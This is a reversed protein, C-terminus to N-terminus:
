GGRTVRRNATIWCARARKVLPTLRHVEAQRMEELRAEDIQGELTLHNQHRAIKEARPEHGHLFNSM